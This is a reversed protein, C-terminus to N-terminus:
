LLIFSDPMFFLSDPPLFTPFSSITHRIWKQCPLIWKPDHRIWCFNMLVGCGYIFLCLFYWKQRPNSIDLLLLRSKKTIFTASEHHFTCIAYFFPWIWKAFPPIWEFFVFLDLDIIFGASFVPFYTAYEYQHHACEYILSSHPTSFWTDAMSAFSDAVIETASEHKKLPSGTFSYSYVCM